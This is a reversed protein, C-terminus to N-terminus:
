GIYLAMKEEIPLDFFTKAENLMNSFLSPEMGHGTIYMFGVHRAAHALNEVVTLKQETTGNLGSMDIVPITTFHSDM